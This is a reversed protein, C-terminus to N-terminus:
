GSGPHWEPERKTKRPNGELGTISHIVNGARLDVVEITRQYEGPVFLRQGNIDVAPHDFYGEVNPIPIAQIQELPASSRAPAGLSATMWM